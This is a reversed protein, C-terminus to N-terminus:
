GQGGALEEALAALAERGGRLYAAWDRGADALQGARENWQAALTTARDALVAPDDDVGERRVARRLEVLASVAGEAFKAAPFSEGSRSIACLSAEGTGAMLTGQARALHEELVARGSAHVGSMM